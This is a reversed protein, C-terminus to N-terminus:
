RFSERFSYSILCQRYASCAADMSTTRLEEHSLPAFEAVDALGTNACRASSSYTSRRRSGRIAEERPVGDCSGSHGDGTPLKLIGTANYGYM